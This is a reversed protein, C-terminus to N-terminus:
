PLALKLGATISRRFLSSFEQRSNGIPLTGLAFATVHNGLAMESYASLEKGIDTLSHTLM